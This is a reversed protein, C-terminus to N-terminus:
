LIFKINDNGVTRPCGAKPGETRIVVYRMRDALGEDRKDLYVAIITGKCSDETTICVKNTGDPMVLKPNIKFNGCM